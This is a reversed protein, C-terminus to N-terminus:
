AWHTRWSSRRPRIRHLRISFRKLHRKPHEATRDRSFYFAAAPPVPGAFLQDDRVYTWHRATVTKGRALLPVTTDDGHLREAALVHAEILAHLPSLVAAATGVWDALVSVSLEVGERGYSESQRNLPLHQGFKAELVM